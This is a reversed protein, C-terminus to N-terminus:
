PHCLSWQLSFCMEMESTELQLSATIIGMERCDSSGSSVWQGRPLARYATGSGGSSLRARFSPRGSSRDPGRSRGRFVKPPSPSLFFCLVLSSLPFCALSIETEVWIGGVEASRIEQGRGRSMKKEKKKQLWHVCSKQRKKKNMAASFVCVLERSAHVEAQTNQTDRERPVM